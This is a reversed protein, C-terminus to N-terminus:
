KSDGKLCAIHLPMQAKINRVCMQASKNVLQSFVTVSEDQGFPIIHMPTERNLNVLNVDIDPHTVLANLVNMREEFITHFIEAAEGDERDDTIDRLCEIKWNEDSWADQISPINILKLDSVKSQPVEDLDLVAKRLALHLPTDGNQCHANVNAGESLVFKTMASNGVLVSFHLPTLGYINHANSTRRQDAQLECEPMHHNGTRYNTSSRQVGINIDAGHQLLFKSLKQHSKAVSYHLPTMNGLDSASLNPCDSHSFIITTLQLADDERGLTALHLSNQKMLNLAEANAGMRLLIQATNVAMNEVANLFPTHGRNDALEINAGNDVLVRFLAEQGHNIAHHVASKGKRDVLNVVFGHRLLLEVTSIQGNRTAWHLASQGDDDTSDILSTKKLLGLICEDLGFWATSRITSFESLITKKYIPFLRDERLVQFSNKLTFHNQLFNEVIEQVQAYAQRAHYGWNIAAYAYLPYQQHRAKYEYVSAPPEIQFTTYHALRIVDTQEDVVVLGACLSVLDDINTLNNTSLKSEGVNVAIGQQLELPSLPRTACVIWLLVEKARRVNEHSQDEIRKMIAGYADSLGPPLIRLRDRIEDPSLKDEIFRLQVSALLFMGDAANTVAAFIEEQLDPSQQVCRPLRKLSNKLLKRIDTDKAAIRFHPFNHFMDSIDPNDRSTILLSTPPFKAIPMEDLADIIIFVKSFRSIAFELLELIEELTLHSEYKRHSDYLSKLRHPVLQDQILQKLINALIEETTLIERYNRYFYVLRVTSDHRIRRHLEDIVASIRLTKGTGPAGPCFLTRWIKQDQDQNFWTVFENAELFWRGTGNLRLKLKDAQKAENNIPSIWKMLNLRDKENLHQVIQEVGKATQDWVFRKWFLKMTGRFNNTNVNFEGYDDLKKRIDRLLLQCNKSIDYLTHKQQESLLRDYHENAMCQFMNSFTEVEESIIRYQSPADKFQKRLDNALKLFTYIDGAGYGFDM